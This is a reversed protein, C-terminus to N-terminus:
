QMVKHSDTGSIALNGSSLDHSCNNKTECTGDYNFYINSLLYNPLSNQVSLSLLILLLCGTVLIGELNCSLEFLEM